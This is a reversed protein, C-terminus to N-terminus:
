SNERPLWPIQRVEVGEEALAKADEESSEGYISRQEIEGYHMKRAEEAFTPGVYDCTEEIKKRLELLAQRANVAAEDIGGSGPAKESAQGSDAHFDSHSDSRSATGSALRPAMIAKEVKKSGCFPCRLEGAERQSDYLSSDRFWVEFTHDKRCRLNYLIM